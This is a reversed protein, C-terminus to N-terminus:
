MEMILFRQTVSVALAQSNLFMTLRVQDPLGAEQLVPMGFLPLAMSPLVSMLAQLIQNPSEGQHM